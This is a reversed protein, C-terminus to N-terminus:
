SSSLHLGRSLFINVQDGILRSSVKSSVWPPMAFHIKFLPYEQDSSPHSKRVSVLSKPGNKPSKPRKETESTIRVKPNKRKRVLAYTKAPIAASIESVYVSFLELITLYYYRALSISISIM